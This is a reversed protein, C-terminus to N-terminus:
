GILSYLTTAEYKEASRKVELRTEAMEFDQVVRLNQYFHIKIGHL